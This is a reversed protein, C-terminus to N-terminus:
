EGLGEGERAAPLALPEGGDVRIEIRLGYRWALEELKAALKRAAAAIEESSAPVIPTEAIKKAEADRAMGVAKLAEQDAQANALRAQARTLEADASLKDLQADAARDALEWKHAFWPLVTELFRQWRGKEAPTRPPNPIGTYRQLPVPEDENSDYPQRM